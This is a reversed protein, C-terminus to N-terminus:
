QGFGGGTGGGPFGGGPVGGQPAQGGGPFGGQQTSGSRGTRAGAPLSFGPVQVTDGSSLGSVVETQTM